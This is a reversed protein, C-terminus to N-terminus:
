YRQLDAQAWMRLQELKGKGWVIVYSYYCISRRSVCLLAWLNQSEHKPILLLPDTAVTCWQAKFSTLLWPLLCADRCARVYTYMHFQENWAQSQFPTFISCIFSCIFSCVFLHFHLVTWSCHEIFIRVHSTLSRKVFPIYLMANVKYM